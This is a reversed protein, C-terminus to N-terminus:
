RGDVVPGATDPRSELTNDVWRIFSDSGNSRFQAEQLGFERVELSRMRRQKAFLIPTGVEGPRVVRLDDIFFVSFVRQTSSTM